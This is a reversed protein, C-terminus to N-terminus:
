KRTLPLYWYSMDHNIGPLHVADPLEGFLTFGFRRMLATSGANDSFILTTAIRMGRERAADLLWSVLKTGVGQRRASSEVYYSLEVVGDYGAREHFRSLSGFAVVKGDSGEVVVVPYVARPEHSDVWAKRQELTRPEIDASSKRELVAENYIDTIAQLDADTADRIILETMSCWCIAIDSKRATSCQSHWERHFIDLHWVFPARCIGRGVLISLVPELETM